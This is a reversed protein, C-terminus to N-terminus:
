NQVCGPLKEGNWNTAAELFFGEIYKSPSCSIDIIEGNFVLQAKPTIYGYVEIPEGINIFSQLTKYNTVSCTGNKRYDTKGCNYSTIREKLTTDTKGIKYLKRSNKLVFAYVVGEINDIDDYIPTWDLKEKESSPNLEGLLSFMDKLPFSEWEKWSSIDEVSFVGEMRSFAEDMDDTIFTYKIPATNEIKKLFGKKALSALTNGSIDEGIFVSLDKASFIKDYFHKAIIPLIIEGKSKSM